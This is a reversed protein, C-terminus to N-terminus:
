VGPRLGRGVEEVAFPLAILEDDNAQDYFQVTETFSGDSKEVFYCRNRLANPVMVFPLMEGDTDFFQDELDAVQSSRTLLSGNSAYITTGRTYKTKINFATTNVIAPKRQARSWGELMDSEFVYFQSYLKLAGLQLNQSNSTISLRWYRWGTPSYSGVTPTATTLDLWPNVPWARTGTGFWSPITLAVEFAPSGWSNSTNAQLVVDAGADFDHHILAALDVRQAVGFDLVWAGTTSDIKGVKAPDDSVIQAPGYNDDGPDTGTGITAATTRGVEDRYFTIITNARAM